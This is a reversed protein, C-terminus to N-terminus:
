WTRNSWLEPSREETAYLAVSFRDRKDLVERSNDVSWFYNYGNRNYISNCYGKHIKKILKLCLNVDIALRKTTANSAGAIFRYKYPRKHFKPIMFLKPIRKNSDSVKHLRELQICQNDVIEQPSSGRCYTYADNGEIRGRIGLEEKIKSIYFKQCIFAFNNSAKDM